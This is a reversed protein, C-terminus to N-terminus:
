SEFDVTARYKLQMVHLENALQRQKKYISSMQNKITEREAKHTVCFVYEKTERDTDYGQFEPDENYTRTQKCGCPNTRIQTNIHISTM